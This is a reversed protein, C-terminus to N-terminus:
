GNKPKKAEHALSQRAARTLVERLPADDVRDLAERLSGPLDAEALPVVKPPRREDNRPRRPRQGARVRLSELELSPMAARLKDILTPAMLTVEHAWASTTTEVYLVRERLRTPSANKVVRAPLVREWAASIVSVMMTTNSRGFVAPVLEGLATPESRRPRAM